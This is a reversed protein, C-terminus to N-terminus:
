FEMFEDWTAANCVPCREVKETEINGCVPCVFYSIKEGADLNDLAEQYLRAHIGEVQGTQDFLRAAKKDGAAEADAKFEPYMSDKEYSEGEIAAKLNDATSNVNGAMKFEAMAHITEAEAAARFLRAANDKGEKEAQEAYALYKRNAQSEGAFSAMLNEKVKSM